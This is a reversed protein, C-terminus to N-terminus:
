PLFIDAGRNGFLHDDGDFGRLTDDGGAGELEQPGDGGFILDDGNAGYVLGYKAENRITDPGAGGFIAGGFPYRLISLHDAGLGGELRTHQQVSPSDLVTLTDNGQRGDVDTIESSVLDGEGVEGDDPLDDGITVTVPNTRSHYDVLASGELIDAGAGGDLWSNYVAGGGALEDEGAGGDVFASGLTGPLIKVYDDQDDAAIRLRFTGQKEITAACFGEHAAPATRGAGATLTAGTDIVYVGQSDTSVFVRNTEGPDPDYHLTTGDRPLTGPQAVSAFVLLCGAATLAGGIAVMAVLGRM